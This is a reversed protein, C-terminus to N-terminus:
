TFYFCCIGSNLSKAGTGDLQISAAPVCPPRPLTRLTV